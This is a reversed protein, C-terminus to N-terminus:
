ATIEKATWGRLQQGLLLYDKSPYHEAKRPLILHDRLTSKFLEVGGDWGMGKLQGLKRENLIVKFDTRIGILGNDFARHHLSSLCLGNKIEDTGTEHEVPIIHAGDLLDLQIGSMSCRNEYVSMINSRFRADRIKRQVQQLTVKRPGAPIEKVEPEAAADVIQELTIFDQRSASQHLGEIEQIYTVAFDPRFAIAIEDNGKEQPSFGKTKATLVAQKRIQFSPSKGLTRHKTVDFGAFIKEDESWGLIVTKVDPELEFHDVGTIQIRLEDPNRPYGGHTMNWIYLLIVIREQESRFISLKAPHEDRLILVNWGSLTVAEVFRQILANKRPLAM